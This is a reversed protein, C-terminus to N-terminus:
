PIWVIFLLYLVYIILYKQFGHNSHIFYLQDSPSNKKIYNLFLATLTANLM